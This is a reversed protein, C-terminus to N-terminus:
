VFNAYNVCVVSSPLAYIQERLHKELVFPLALLTPPEATKIPTPPAIIISNKTVVPNSKQKLIASKYVKQMKQNKRSSKM